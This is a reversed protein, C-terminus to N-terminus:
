VAKVDREAGDKLENIEKKGWQKTLKENNYCFRQQM